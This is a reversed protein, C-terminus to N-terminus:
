RIKDIPGLSVVVDDKKKKDLKIGKVKKRENLKQARSHLALPTLWQALAAACGQWSHLM